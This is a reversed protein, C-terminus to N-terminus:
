FQDAHGAGGVNQSIKPKKNSQISLTVNLAHSNLLVLDIEIKLCKPM